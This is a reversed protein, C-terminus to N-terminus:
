NIHMSMEMPRGQWGAEKLDTPQREGTAPWGGQIYNGGRRDGIWELIHAWVRQGGACRDAIGIAPVVELRRKTDYDGSGGFWRIM